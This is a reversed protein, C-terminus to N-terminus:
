ENLLVQWRPALEIDLIDNKLPHGSDGVFRVFRRSYIMREIGDNKSFEPLCCFTVLKINLYRGRVRIRSM